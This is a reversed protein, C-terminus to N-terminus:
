VLRRSPDERGGAVGALRCVSLDRRSGGSQVRHGPDRGCEAPCNRRAAAGGLTTFWGGALIKGDAQVALSYVGPQTGGGAGPNFSSDLTGDANLRGIYNRPQGGLWTFQGGVLIKGDAQVALSYVSNSAGPNFASDPTGDANLRGIYNRPQGGLTTFSGGVLIKEDAQVALSSVTRDAGLNFGSDLTGDANLRAIRGNSGVLIRGDPQLALSVAGVGPNFGSDLTVPYDVTLQAVASTVSGYQNTVVVHYNGADAAQLNTLTLSPEAGGTLAMGEKCWQYGFPATGAPTVTFTASQGLERIQSVPQIAIAPELVTLTAVASTVCGFGNSVVVSYGDADARLVNALMLVATRAGAIKGGDTLPVAAKRWQFSLPETGGALVSFTATTGADNTRCPPQTTFGPSGYYAEVFWGSANRYGGAVYGRARLTSGLPLAVGTLQWGGTIRSGAGLASWDTGNASVEFITRWVEPSTGSRLWTITSVDYRLSQTALATNNLRGLCYRTQGGLTNFVGGVLIKGDPQVALSLVRYNAGPNFGTDLTGDVNLRAINTRTQGGLATFYGGVLIKRDTQVALSSVYPSYGDSRGAGPNFGSDLTGDANLRAIQNRTEGGLWTFQGGALIKGDAQVALSSVEYDAGPNFGNDLSGDANLRAIGSRPQGGLWTFQGGVLIKGDGQVALSSVINDAGPNFGSDLTGDANLRALCNRTQGGLMTFEGGVLIKGDAQVALSSVTNDAGPNFGGDLTGDANLRALYNRTQGGLTTFYGGVLIKGDAQVALSYVFSYDVGGAGPDFGTDLTGDANLRGINNRMQGGLTTFYGGVLIKGDPQVALSSVDGNAGPNFSDPYPSQAAAPRSTLISLQTLAALTAPLISFRTRLKTKM